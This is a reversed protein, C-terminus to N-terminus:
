LTGRTNQTTQHEWFGNELSSFGNLFLYSRHGQSPGGFCVVSVGVVIALTAVDIRVAGLRSLSTWRVRTYM